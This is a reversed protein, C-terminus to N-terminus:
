GADALAISRGSSGNATGEYGIRLRARVAEPDMGLFDCVNVFAFPWERGNSAIWEFAEASQEPTVGRRAQLVCGVADEFIAVVLSVEPLCVPVRRPLFSATFAICDDAM